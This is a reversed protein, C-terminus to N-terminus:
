VEKKSILNDILVYLNLGIIVTVIMWDKFSVVEDFRITITIIMYMGLLFMGLGYGLINLIILVKM